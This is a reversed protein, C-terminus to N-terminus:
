LETELLEIGLRLNVLDIEETAVAGLIWYQRDERSVFKWRNYLTPILLHQNPEDGVFLIIKLTPPQVVFTNVSRGKLRNFQHYSIKM